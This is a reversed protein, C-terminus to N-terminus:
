IFVKKPTTIKTIYIIECAGDGTDTRTVSSHWSLPYNKYSGNVNVLFGDLKVYQNKKIYKLAKRLNKNAPIIHCNSSHQSIYDSNFPSDQKYKYFYFRGWQSYKIMKKLKTDTLGGWGLALDYPSIKGDWNRFYKKKSLVKASIQFSAIPSIFINGKALKITITKADIKEQYPDPWTDIISTIKTGVPMDIALYIGLGSVLATIILVYKLIINM